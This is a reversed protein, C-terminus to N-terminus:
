AWFGRTFIGNLFEMGPPAGAVGSAAPPHRQDAGGSSPEAPGDPDDASLFSANIDNYLNFYHLTPTRSALIFLRLIFIQPMMYMYEYGNIFCPAEM